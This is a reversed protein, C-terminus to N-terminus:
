HTFFGGALEPLPSTHEIGLHSLDRSTLFSLGRWRVRISFGSGFDLSYITRSTVFDSMVRAHACLGSRIYVCIHIINM